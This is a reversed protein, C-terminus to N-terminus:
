WSEGRPSTDPLAEWAATGLPCQSPGAHGRSLSFPASSIIDSLPFNHVSNYVLLRQWM